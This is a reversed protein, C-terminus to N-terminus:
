SCSWVNACAMNLPFSGVVVLVGGVVPVDVVVLTGITVPVGAMNGVRRLPM